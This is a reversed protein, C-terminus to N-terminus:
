LLIGGSSAIHLSIPLNDVEGSHKAPSRGMLNSRHMKPLSSHHIIEGNQDCRFNGSIEEEVTDEYM